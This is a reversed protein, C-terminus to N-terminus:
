VFNYSAKDDGEKPKAPPIVMMIEGVCAAWKKAIKAELHHCQITIEEKTFTVPRPEEEYKEVNVVNGDPDIVVFQRDYFRSTAM